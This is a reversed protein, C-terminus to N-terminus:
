PCYAPKPLGEPCRWTQLAGIEGESLGRSFVALEDFWGEFWENNSPTREGIRLPASGSMPYIAWCAEMCYGDAGCSNTGCGEACGRRAQCFGGNCPRGACDASTTCTYRQDVRSKFSCESNDNDCAAPVGRAGFLPDAQPPDIADTCDVTGNYWAKPDTGGYIRNGNVFLSSGAEPDLADGSDLRFVVSFYNDAISDTGGTIQSKPNEALPPGPLKVDVGSGLVGPLNNVYAKLHYERGNNSEEVSCYNPDAPHDAPNCTYCGVTGPTCDDDHYRFTYEYNESEGKGFINYRFRGNPWNSSPTNNQAEPIQLLVHISFGITQAWFGELQVLPRASNLSNSTRIGVAGTSAIGATACVQWRGGAACTEDAATLPDDPPQSFQNYQLTGMKWARARYIAGDFQFRIYWWDGLRYTGIDPVSGLVTSVGNALKVISLSLTHNSSESLEARVFNNNDVYQAVLSVPQLTGHKARVSWTARVQMDGHLLNTNLGQQFTGSAGQPDVVARNGDTFYYPGNSVHAAWTQNDPATGWSNSYSNSARNFNDWARTLSLVKHDPITGFGPGLKGRFKVSGNADDYVGGPQALLFNGSYTGHMANPGSDLLTSEGLRWYGVPSLESVVRQSYDVLGQQTTSVNLEESFVCSASLCLGFLPFYRLAYMSGGIHIRLLM